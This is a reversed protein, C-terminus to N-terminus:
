HLALAACVCCCLRVDLRWGCRSYALWFFWKTLLLLAMTTIAAATPTNHLTAKGKGEKEKNRGEKGGGGGGGGRIISFYEFVTEEEAGEKESPLM